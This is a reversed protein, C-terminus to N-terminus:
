LGAQSVDIRKFGMAIAPSEPKLRFDRAQANEFLPDAIISQVDYGKARWQDFTDDKFKVETGRADWYINNALFYNGNKWTSGLLNGQDFYVINGTFFFSIHEEDRSRIVQDNLSFAFINNRVRNEKGYHQHFGGTKTNYAVNNEILLDSSGEDPYIGWGGYYFSMVDHIHNNRLITGPAVGLTYIGGMDSLISKGLDHIHNYEIINHNASSPDYGWSWGVSIGTYYFDSIENHSVTNYSARAVWVGVAAPFMKGGDHLWNNDVTNRLVAQFPTDPSKGEGIRVGGAGLDYCHNRAILNDKCGEGFWIAYTSIHAVEGDTVSCFRAGKAHFAGPLPYAAQYDPMGEAPLTYESHAFSLGKFHLHEVASSAEDGNLLVIQKAVPVIVETNSPEEGPKPMYYLKKEKGSRYWEGPADLAARVGQIFYRQEPGWNEIAWMTKSTLNVINGTEELSAVHHFSTDWSHYVIIIAQDLDDWAQLDGPKYIFATHSRDLKNGAADTSEPVKGATALFGENPTRAPHRYEGNVWVASFEPLGSVDAVWLEGQKEWATVRVGGSIMPKAGPAAVYRVPKDFTGSDASTFAIADTIAYRGDQLVVDIQATFQNAAKMERIRDRARQVTAVPGDTGEANPALLSGSWADNGSPAVHITITESVALSATLAIAMATLTRIFM